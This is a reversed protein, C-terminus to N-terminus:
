RSGTLTRENNNSENNGIGTYPNTSFLSSRNLFSNFVNLGNDNKSLSYGLICNTALLGVLQGYALIRIDDFIFASSLSFILSISFTGVAEAILTPNTRKQSMLIGSIIAKAGYLPGTFSMIRLLSTAVKEIEQQTEKNQQNLYMSTIEKSFMFFAFVYATALVFVAITSVNLIRIKFQRNQNNTEQALTVNMLIAFPEFLTIAWFSMSASIQYSALLNTSFTGAILGTALNNTVTFFYKGSIPMGIKLLEKIKLLLNRDFQPKELGGCKKIYHRAAKFPMASLALLLLTINPQLGTALGWGKIGLGFTYLFLVTLGIELSTKLISMPIMFKTKKTSVLFNTIIMLGIMAPTSVSHFNFYTQTFQYKSEDILKIILPSLLYIPICIVSYMLGLMTAAHFIMKLQTENNELYALSVLPQIGIFVTTSITNVFMKIISTYTSAALEETGLRGIIIGDVFSGTYVIINDIILPFYIAGLSKLTTIKTDFGREYYQITDNDDTSLEFDSSDIINSVNSDTDTNSDTASDLEIIEDSSSM